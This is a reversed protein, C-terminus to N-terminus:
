CFLLEWLLGGTEWVACASIFLILCIIGALLSLMECKWCFVVLGSQEGDAHSIFCAKESRSPVQPKQMLFSTM